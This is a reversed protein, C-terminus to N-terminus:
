WKYVVGGYNGRRGVWYVGCRFWEKDFVGAVIESLISLSVGRGLNQIWVEYIAYTPLCKFLLWVNYNIKM